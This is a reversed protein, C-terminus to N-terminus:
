LLLSVPLATVSMHQETATQSAFHTVEQAHVQNCVCVIYSAFEIVEHARVPSCVFAAHHTFRLMFASRRWM